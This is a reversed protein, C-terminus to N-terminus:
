DDLKAIATRAFRKAIGCPAAVSLVRGEGLAAVLLPRGSMGCYAAKAGVEVAERRRMMKKLAAFPQAQVALTVFGAQAQKGRYICTPGQPAETVDVIRYGVIAGAAGRSVLSCPSFRKKPKASQRALLKSYGPNAKAAAANDSAAASGGAPGAPAGAENLRSGDPASSGEPTPQAAVPNEASGKPPSKDGGCAALLATAALLAILIPLRRM